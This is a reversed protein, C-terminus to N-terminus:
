VKKQIVVLAFIGQHAEIIKEAARIYKYLFAPMINRLSIGGSLIYVLPMIPRIVNISFGPFEKNFVERDRSFIIWPIAQNSNSLPGGSVCGWDEADPEFPEHHFNRYFFKAFPTNWPEVMCITGEKILCREAESFFLKPQHVHHLVNVMIIAKLSGAKFPLYQGNCQLDIGKAPIIDSQIVLDSYDASFGAGSGIELIKEKGQPVFKFLTEYWEQYIKWLFPKNRLIQKRLNTTRPDDLDLDKTLPHQLWEKLLTSLNPKM